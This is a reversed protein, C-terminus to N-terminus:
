DQLDDGCGRLDPGRLRDRALRQWLQRVGPVQRAREWLTSWTGGPPCHSPEEPYTLGIGCPTNLLSGGGPSTDGTDLGQRVRDPSTSSTGIRTAGEDGCDAERGGGSLAAAGGGLADVCTGSQAQFQPGHAHHPFRPPQDSGFEGLQPRFIKPQKNLPLDPPKNNLYFSRLFRKQELPKLSRPHVAVQHGHIDILVAARPGPSPLNDIKMSPDCGCGFLVTYGHGRNRKSQPRGTTWWFKDQGM